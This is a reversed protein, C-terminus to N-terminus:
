LRYRLTFSTVLNYYGLSNNVRKAVNVLSVTSRLNASLRDIIQYGVGGGISYDTRFFADTQDVFEFGNSFKANLLLGLSAGAEVNLKKSAQYFIYVPVEVYNLRLRFPELAISASDNVSSSGKQTYLFEFRIGTKPSFKSEIGAGIQLGVKNFGILSDGNVQSANMGAILMANFNQAKTALSVFILLFILWCKRMHKPFVMIEFM